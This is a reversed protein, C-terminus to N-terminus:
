DSVAGGINLLFVVSLICQEHALYSADLVSYGDGTHCPLTMDKEKGMRSPMDCTYCMPVDSSRLDSQRLM